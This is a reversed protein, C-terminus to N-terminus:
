VMFLLLHQDDVNSHNAFNPIQFSGKFYKGNVIRSSQILSGNTNNTLGVVLNMTKTVFEVQGPTSDPLRSLTAVGIDDLIKMLKKVRRVQSYYYFFFLPYILLTQVWVIVLFNYAHKFHFIFNLIICQIYM